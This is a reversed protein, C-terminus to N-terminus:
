LSLNFGLSVTRFAPYNWSLTEPDIGKPLSSFTALNEVSVFAKLSQLSVKSILSKPFTYSLTVNKIRLYSADSLYKDSERFNSSQNGYNGYIRPYEANPNACTYDGAAMDVPKWYNELGEYLPTFKFNPYLPLVLNNTLWYDRQGTGQIFVNLDFGAYNAGLNLGFLYRPTTNGIVKRDGPNELTNNGSTIINIKGEEDRLNKFKIDGPRPSIGDISTVGDKLIWSDTSEFDNASYFDDVVYGWIEGLEQGEYYTSLLKSKNSDYKIIESKSDSLNLGVRYGVRGIRDRWNLNIEWGKTRMDATNQYPASAGVGSPLEVGPALMGETDRQFYELVGTLRNNFMSFDLGVNLTKVVEWTFGNSVLSPLDVIATTFEGNNLWGKYSNSVTLTPTYMYSSINQNGIEGYSARLKLSGLWDRTSQMFSEEAIQWGLSASPFFGFRNKKPFKSSGDYRGNLELLYRNKYDYNVRFFGGRLNVENYDDLAKITSTGGAMAPFDVISQGYSYADLLEYYKSEQNFGAMVKFNHDKLKFQYTGYLNIANYDTASKSKYLYDESPTVNVGGQITTYEWLGTYYHYDNVNKDFTYEFVVEMGKFPKLISKLFLRPNDYVKKNTNAGLIENKPTFFPLGVGGLGYDGGEPCTGEPYYSTLDTTYITGLSSTPLNSKSHAYSFNAEQTLWPTIDASIFGSFNKRNYQDKDTILVGDQDVYGASLRYRLKDTAGNVSVNHTMQFGSELMNKVLDKENLYYISGDADKYIGDGMIDLSSPNGKYQKLLEMWRQVSTSGPTWFQDGCADYYAQLYNMLSSQKPLNIASTFAFNNSYNLNFDTKGKPRKTTVLIVGGAARAGYIASSAADKMVSISEIDDPNVMDIDGEVNDILVLPNGGNISLVGRIQFSKSAGPANNTNSVILGPIAGQLASSTNTLPRNGLVDDMKVTSVAGTLNAKKQTGFGVVVVEELAETDEVLIINMSKGIEVKVKQDKYGIYSIEIYSDKSKVTFTFNGDMDSVTGNNTDAELITAGIIPEGDVSVIKGTVTAGEQASKAETSLIIKKDLVSYTVDTGAFVQDLVKFIDKENASVSVVRNLDVHRNNFFFDFDTQSEIENLVDGVTQNIVEISIKTKQAYSESAQAMGLFCFLFLISLRMSLPIKNIFLRLSKENWIQQVDFPKQM